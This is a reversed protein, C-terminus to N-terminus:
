TCMRQMKAQAQEATIFAHGRNWVKTGTPLIGVWGSYVEEVAVYSDEVPAVFRLGCPKHTSGESAREWILTSKM